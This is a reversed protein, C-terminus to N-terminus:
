EWFNIADWGDNDPNRVCVMGKQSGATVRGLATEAISTNPLGAKTTAEYWTIGGGGGGFGRSTGDAHIIVRDGARELTVGRGGEMMNLIWHKLHAFFPAGVPQFKKPPEVRQNPNYKKDSPFLM